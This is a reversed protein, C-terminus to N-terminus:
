RDTCHVEVDRGDMSLHLGRSCATVTSFSFMYVRRGAKDIAYVGWLAANLGDRGNRNAGQAIVWSDEEVQYGLDLLRKAVRRCYRGTGDAQGAMSIRVRPYIDSQSLWDPRLIPLNRLGQHPLRQERGDLVGDLM